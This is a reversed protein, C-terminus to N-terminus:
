LIADAAAADAAARAPRAHITYTHSTNYTYIHVYQNTDPTHTHLM